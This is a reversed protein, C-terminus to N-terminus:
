DAPWLKKDLWENILMAAGRFNIREPSEGFYINVPSTLEVTGDSESALYAVEARTLDRDYVRV